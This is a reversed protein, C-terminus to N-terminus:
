KNDANYKILGNVIRIIDIFTLKQPDVGLEKMCYAEMEAVKLNFRDALEFVKPYKPRLAKASSCGAGLNQVEYWALDERVEQKGDKREVEIKRDQSGEYAKVYEDDLEKKYIAIDKYFQEVKEIKEQTFEMNNNMM